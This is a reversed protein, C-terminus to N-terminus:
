IGPCRINSKHVVAPDSLSITNHIGQILDLQCEMATLSDSSGATM